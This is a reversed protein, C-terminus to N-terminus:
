RNSGLVAGAENIDKFMKACLQAGEERGMMKIRQGAQQKGLAVSTSAVERLATIQTVQELLRIQKKNFKCHHAFAM